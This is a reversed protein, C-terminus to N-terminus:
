CLPVIKVSRCFPSEPAIDYISTWDRDPGRHRLCATLTGGAGGSVDGHFHCLKLPLLIYFNLGGKLVFFFDDATWLLVYATLKM